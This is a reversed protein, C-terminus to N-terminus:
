QYVMVVRYNRSSAANNDIAANPATALAWRVAIALGGPTLDGNFGLPFYDTTGTRTAVGYVGLLVTGPNTFTVTAGAGISGTFLKWKLEGGGVGSEYFQMGTATLSMRAAGATAFGLVNSSARYMGMDTNSLFAFAPNSASGSVLQLSASSFAGVAAGAISFALQNAGMHYMGTDQDGAFTFAPLAETGSNVSIVQANTLILTPVGGATFGLENAGSRYMGTDTDSGFTYSPAADTGDVYNLLGLSNWVARRAGGTTIGLQNAGDNYFGTDLDSSFAISPNAASGVAAGITLVGSNDMSVINTNTPVALPLTVSYAAALAVPAKITISNTFATLGDYPYLIMDANAMRATKGSDYSWTFSKTVSSYVASAPSSLGSISGTAGAVSGGATIPVVNGASDIYTLEGNKVFITATSAPNSSQTDFRASLLSAASFGNFELDANIDIGAPNIPVGKGPTHDHIDVTEWNLNSQSAWLPGPTGGFGPTPEILSM